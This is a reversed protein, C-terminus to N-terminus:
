CKGEAWNKLLNMGYVHSKEPHFQFGTVNNKKIASVFDIGHRTKALVDSENKCCVHYSHVFYFRPQEINAFLNVCSENIYTLSNWGMHPVKLSTDNPFAFRVTEADFFGLGSFDGEESCKTLLQMGLCIGLVPLKGERFIELLCNYLNMQKLNKIGEDFSGVGPLIIKDAERIEISDSSIKAELGIKKLMNLVSAVNGMNYDVVVIM